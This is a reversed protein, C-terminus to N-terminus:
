FAPLSIFIHEFEKREKEKKKNDLRLIIETSFKIIKKGKIVLRQM